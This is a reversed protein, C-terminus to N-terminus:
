LSRTMSSEQWVWENFLWSAYSRPLIHSKSVDINLCKSNEELFQIGYHLVSKRFSLNTPLKPMLIFSDSAFWTNMIAQSLAVNWNSIKAEIAIIRRVAFIESLPKSYYRNRERILVDADLLRFLSQKANYYFMDELDSEYISRRHYIYHLLRIDNKELLSRCNSWSTTVGHDWVVAVLDPVGSELRPQCYITTSFDAFNWLPKRLLFRNVLDLEPGAKPPLLNPGTIRINSTHDFINHTTAM